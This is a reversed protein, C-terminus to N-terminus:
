KRRIASKALWPLTRWLDIVSRFLAGPWGNGLAGHRAADGPQEAAVVGTTMGGAVKRRTTKSDKVPM